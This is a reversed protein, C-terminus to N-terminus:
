RETKVFRENKFFEIDEIHEMVNYKGKAIGELEQDTLADNVKVIVNNAQKHGNKIANGITNRKLSDTEEVEWLIGNIRLDPNKNLKADPFIIKYQPDKQSSFTPMIDVRKGENAKLNAVRLVTPYDKAQKDALYHERVVGGNDVTRLTSFQRDYPYTKLTANKVAEPIDVFYPHDEPFILGRKATNTQFMQPIDTSPINETAKGYSLRQVTSRCGYHNPPYFTDWFPHDVPLITGDLPRCIESTHSDLVADFKLLPFTEKEQQIEVWKRAMQGGAQALQYEVNLYQVSMTENIKLASKIFESQSRLKGTEDLLAAGIERLQTYNKAGAFQWTNAQLQELMVKDPSDFAVETLKQGYGEEVGQWLRQAFLRTVEPNILGTPLKKEKWIQEVMAAMASALEEPTALNPLHEHACCPTYLAM